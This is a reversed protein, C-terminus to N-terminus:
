VYFFFHFHWYLFTLFYPYLLYILIHEFVNLLIFILSFFLLVSDTQYWASCIGKPVPVFCVCSFATLFLGKQGLHRLMKM